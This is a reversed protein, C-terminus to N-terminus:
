EKSEKTKKKVPEDSEGTLLRTLAKRQESTLVKVMEAKEQGKLSVIQAELAMIKTGYDTQITYIKLVQDKSLDLKKWGAPLQGRIKPKKEQASTSAMFMMALALAITTAYRM